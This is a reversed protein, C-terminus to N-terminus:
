ASSGEDHSRRDLEAHAIIICHDSHLSLPSVSVTAKAFKEVIREQDETLGNQDGLVFLSGDELGVNRIDEGDERLYYIDWEDSLMEFLEELHIKSVYIGPSTMREGREVKVGLAKRILGGINREDPGLYKLESGEMRILKPPDPPGLLLLYATADKRMGHSTLFVSNVCRCMVDMRGAGPLDNLSFDSSTRASNSIVLFGRM